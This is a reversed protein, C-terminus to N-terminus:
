EGGGDGGHQKMIQRVNAEADRMWKKVTNFSRGWCEGIQSYTMSCEHRMFLLLADFCDLHQSLIHVTSDATLSLDASDNDSSLALNALHDAAVQVERKPRCLYDLRKLMYWKLNLVMHTNLSAGGDLRFTAAVVDAKDVAADLVDGHLDVRGRRCCLNFAAANVKDLNQQNALWDLGAPM